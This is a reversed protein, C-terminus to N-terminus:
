RQCVDGAGMGDAGISVKPGPIASGIKMAIENGNLALVMFDGIHATTDDQLRTAADPFLEITLMRGSGTDELRALRVDKEALTPTSSVFLPQGGVDRESADSWPSTRALSLSLRSQFHPPSCEALVHLDRAPASAITPVSEDASPRHFGLCETFAEPTTKADLFPGSCRPLSTEVSASCKDGSRHKMTQCLGLAFSHLAEERASRSAEACSAAMATVVAALALM